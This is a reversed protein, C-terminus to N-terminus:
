DLLGAVIRTETKGAALGVVGADGVLAPRAATVLVGTGAGEAVGTGAVVAAGVRTGTWAGVRTHSLAANTASIVTGSPVTSAVPCPNLLIQRTRM